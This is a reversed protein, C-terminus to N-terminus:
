KLPRKELGPKLNYEQSKGKPISLWQWDGEVLIRSLLVIQGVHSAVHALSRALAEHVTWPNGRITVQRQLDDDTLPALERFLVAWGAEWMANVQERTYTIEAFEEDRNRWPKEGDSTLFDTFRSRLNGSIHRVIVALSNNDGSLVRNLAEDSVQAFAKEGIIKYREYEDLFDKIM